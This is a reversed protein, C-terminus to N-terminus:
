RVECGNACPVIESELAAAGAPQQKADKHLAVNQKHPLVFNPALAPSALETFIAKPDAEKLQQQKRWHQAFMLCTLQQELSGVSRM